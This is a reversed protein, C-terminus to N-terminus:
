KVPTVLPKGKDVVYTVLLTAKGPGPNTANHPRGAPVAFAEGAKVLKTTGDIEVSVTGEVVYGIEEGFHTHRGPGSGPVHFEVRATVAEKGATSLDVQQLVTRTFPATQAAATALATGLTLWAVAHIAIRRNRFM